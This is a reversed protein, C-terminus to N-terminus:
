ALNKLHIAGKRAAKNLIISSNANLNKKITLSDNQNTVSNQGSSGKRDVNLRTKHPISAIDAKLATINALDNSQVIKSESLYM